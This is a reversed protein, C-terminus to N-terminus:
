IIEDCENPVPLHDVVIKPATSFEELIQHEDHAVEINIFKELRLITTLLIKVFYKAWVFNRLILFLSIAYIWRVFTFVTEHERM